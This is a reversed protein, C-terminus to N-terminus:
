MIKFDKHTRTSGAQGGLVQNRHAAVCVLSVGPLDTGEEIYFWGRNRVQDRSPNQTPSSVIVFSSYELLFCSSSAHPLGLGRQGM